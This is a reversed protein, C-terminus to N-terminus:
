DGADIVDSTAERNPLLDAGGVPAVDAGDDSEVVGGALGGDVELGGVAVLRGPAEVPGVQADDARSVRAPKGVGGPMPEVAKDAVESGPDFLPPGGHAAEAGLGAVGVAVCCGDVTVDVAVGVGEVGHAGTPEGV